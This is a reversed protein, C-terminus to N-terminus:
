VAKGAPIEVLVAGVFIILANFELEYVRFYIFQYNLCIGDMHMYMYM